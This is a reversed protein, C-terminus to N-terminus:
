SNQVGVKAATREEHRRNRRLAMPAAYILGAPLYGSPSHRMPAVCRKGSDRIM